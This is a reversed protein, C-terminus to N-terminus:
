APSLRESRGRLGLDAPTQRAFQLGGADEVVDRGVAFQQGAECCAEVIEVSVVAIGGKAGIWRDGPRGALRHLPLSPRGFVM